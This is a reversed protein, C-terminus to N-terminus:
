RASAQKAWHQLVRLGQLSGRILRTAAMPERLLGMALPLARLNGAADIAGELRPLDEKAGDSVVRLMTVSIGLPQCFRLVAMGEMDVVATGYRTAVERKEAASWIVRDASVGRVRSLALKELRPHGGCPLEVHDFDTCSEYLVASGVGLDPTLSGCLGMVLLGSSRHNEKPSAERVTTSWRTAEAFEESGQWRGLWDSVPQKGIPIARVRVHSQRGVGRQVAQFEAGQPVLITLGDM